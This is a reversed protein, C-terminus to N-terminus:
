AAVEMMEQLPRPLPVFLRTNKKWVHLRYHRWQWVALWPAAGCKQNHCLLYFAANM